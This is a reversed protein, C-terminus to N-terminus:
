KTPTPTTATKLRSHNTTTRPTPTEPIIYRHADQTHTHTKPLAPITHPTTTNKMQGNTPADPPTPLIVRNSHSPYTIFPSAEYVGNTKSPDIPSSRQGWEGNQKRVIGDKIRDYSLYLKNNTYRLIASHSIRPSVLGVNLLYQAEVDVMTNVCDIVRYMVRAVVQRSNVFMLYMVNQMRRATTLEIVKSDYCSAKRWFFM